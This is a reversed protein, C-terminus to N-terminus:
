IESDLLRAIDGTGGNQEDGSAGYISSPSNEGSFVDLMFAAYSLNIELVHRNLDNQAQLDRLIRLLEEGKEMLTRNLPAPARRAIARIDLGEPPLGAEDAIRQVLATRRMEAERAKGVLAEEQQALRLLAEHDDKARLVAQKEEAISLIAGYTEQLVCLQDYVAQYM